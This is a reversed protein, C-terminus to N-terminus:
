DEEYYEDDNSYELFLSESEELYRGCGCACRIDETGVYAVSYSGSDKFDEADEYESPFVLRGTSFANHTIDNYWMSGDYYDEVMYHLIDDVSVPEVKFSDEPNEKPEALSNNLVYQLLQSIANANNSSTSPYQRSQIAYNKETYKDPMLVVQRWIKNDFYYKNYKSEVHSFVEVECESSTVYAIITSNDMMYALTGTRYEGDLAHCSRWGSRNASMTIYDVPDISLVAKGKVKFGQILMSFATQVVHSVSKPVIKGLIRSVKMGKSFKTGFFVMDGSLENNIIQKTNLRSNLLLKALACSRGSLHTNIFNEVLRHAENNSITAEVDKEIKLKNGFMKFIHNKAYSWEQLHSTLDARIGEPSLENFISHLKKVDYESELFQSLTMNSECTLM